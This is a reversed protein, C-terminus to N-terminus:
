FLCKNLSELYKPGGKPGKKRPSKLFFPHLIVGPSSFHWTVFPCCEVRITM